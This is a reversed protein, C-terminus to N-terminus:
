GLYGPVRYRKDIEAIERGLSFKQIQRILNLRRGMPLQREAKLQARQEALENLQHRLQAEKRDIIAEETFSEALAKTHKEYAALIGAVEEAERRPILQREIMDLSAVQARLQILETEYEVTAAGADFAKMIAADLEAQRAAIEAREADIRVQAAAVPSLTTQTATM